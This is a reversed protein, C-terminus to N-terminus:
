FGPDWRLTKKKDKWFFSATLGSPDIAFEKFELDGLTPRNEHPEYNSCEKLSLSGKKILGEYYHGITMTESDTSLIGDVGIQKARVFGDQYLVLHFDPIESKRPKEQSEEFKKYRPPVPQHLVGSFCYEINPGVSQFWHSRAYDRSTLVDGLHEKPINALIELFSKSWVKDDDIKQILVQPSLHYFADINLGLNKSLIEFQPREFDLAYCINMQDLLSFSSGYTNWVESSNKSKGLLNHLDQLRQYLNKKEKITSHIEYYNYDNEIITEVVEWPDRSKAMEILSEQVDQITIKNKQFVKVVKEGIASDIVKEIQNQKEPSLPKEPKLLVFWEKFHEPTFELDILFRSLEHFSLGDLVRQVLTKSDLGDQILSKVKKAYIESFLAM